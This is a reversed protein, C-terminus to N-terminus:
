RYRRQPRTSTTMIRGVGNCLPCLDEDLLFRVRGSGRCEGCLVGGLRPDGPRVMLPQPQLQPPGMAYMPQMMPQVMPQVIPGSGYMSSGNSMGVNNTPAFTRWCSRCSKGNKLKYGTNNCKPCRFNAPYVWPLAPNSHPRPAAPPPPPPPPAPRAPRTPRAQHAQHVSHSHGSPRPPRTPVESYPPQMEEQVAEEYSPLQESHDEAAAGNKSSAYTGGM